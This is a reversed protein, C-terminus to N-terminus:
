PAPVGRLLDVRMGVRFPSAELVKTKKGGIEVDREDDLHAAHVAIVHGYQDFIPSGSNGGRTVADHLVLVAKDPTTAEEHFGMIRGVRGQLFTASPSLPDMVRGPFGLVFVDDGAGIARLEADSALTVWARMSGRVRLLGVDPTSAGVEDDDYAPHARMAAIPLRVKGAADNQIVVPTGGEKTCASVCHANTALTDESIAFATCCGGIRDGKTYGMVYLAHRNQEYIERGTLVQTPLAGTPTTAAVGVLGAESALHDAARRSRYVVAGAALAALLAAVVGAALLAIRRSGRRTAREVEAAVIGHVKDERAVARAVEAHVIRRATELDV